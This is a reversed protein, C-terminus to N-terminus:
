EHTNDACPQQRTGQPLERGLNLRDTMNFADNFSLGTCERDDFVALRNTEKDWVSYRNAGQERRVIYRPPM